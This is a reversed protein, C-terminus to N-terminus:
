KEEITLKMLLRKCEDESIVHFLYLDQIVEALLKEIKNIEKNM